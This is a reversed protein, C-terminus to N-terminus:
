TKKSYKVRKIKDKSSKSGSKPNQRLLGYTERVWFADDKFIKSLKPDKNKNMTSVIILKRFLSLPNKIQTQARMLASRRQQVTLDKVRDYGVNKLVGKELVAPIKNGKGPTGIDRICTSPVESPKVATPRVRSGSKRIFGKRQFGRRTYGAREIYGPPCKISGYKKSIKKQIKEREKLYPMDIESRKIGKASTARICSEAVKVRKGKRKSTYGKRKIMGKPCETKSVM